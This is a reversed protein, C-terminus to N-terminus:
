GGPQRHDHGSRTHADAPAQKAKAKAMSWTPSITLQEVVDLVGPVSAAVAEANDVDELGDVQGRLYAVGRWVHVKILLQTTAADERLERRVADALAEDGPSEESASPEVEISAMSDPSFGGLVEVAGHPGIGIVPDTPAFAVDGSDSVETADSQLPLDTFDPELAGNAASLEDVDEVMEASPEGGLFDAVSVPLRV